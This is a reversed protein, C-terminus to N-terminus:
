CNNMKNINETHKYLILLSCNNSVTSYTHWNTKITNFYEINKSIKKDAYAPKVLSTYSDGVIIISKRIEGKLRTLKQKTYTSAKILYM